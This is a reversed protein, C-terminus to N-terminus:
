KKESKVSKLLITGAVAILGFFTPANSSSTGDYGQAFLDDYRFLDLRFIKSLCMLIGLLGFAIFAISIIKKFQNM